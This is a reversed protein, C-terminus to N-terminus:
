HTSKDAMKLRLNPTHSFIIRYVGGGACACYNSAPKQLPFQNLAAVGM